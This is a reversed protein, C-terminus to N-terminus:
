LETKQGRKDNVHLLPLSNVFQIREPFLGHQRATAERSIYLYDVEQSSVPTWEQHEPRGQRAFSTWLQLMRNSNVVEEQTLSYNFMNSTFFQFLEDAHSVGLPRSCNGFVDNFSAPLEYNYLYFYVPGYTRHHQTTRVAAHTFALDTAMDVLGDYNDESIPKGNLYFAKLKDVFGAREEPLLWNGSSLTMPLRTEINENLELALKYNDSCFPAAIIGGERFNVGIVAPVRSHPLDLPHRPLFNHESGANEIVPGFTILPAKDWIFFKEMVNVFDEVPLQQLCALSKHLPRTPCGVLTSLARARDQALWQPILAWPCAATGSQLIAKHFLGQSLPSVLHFNVSAAGASEGFITVSAPDGGFQAINDQVWKLALRQDKLGFNGPVLPDDFSLFGLAGLRYQITVLVVGHDMFYQPGYTDSTAAGMLFAGGHIFVMVPLQAGSDLKPTYVNLYLCDEQGFIQNGADRFIPMQQPCVPADKSADLQGEWGPHAVPDKLRLDSVPPKAYPIGLFAHFPHGNRSQKVTGGLRGQSITVTEGAVSSSVWCLLLVLISGLM